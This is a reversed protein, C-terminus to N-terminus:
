GHSHGHQHCVLHQNQGLYDAMHPSACLEEFSGYFIVEHDLYLMKTAYEGVTGSDHTVLMITTGSHHLSKLTQYFNERTEPDLAVTPEDLFLVDPESVLARALYARQQQGGSLRGIMRDALNDIGLLALAKDVHQQDQKNLRRPFRKLSLRGAAVVERVSAPFGRHSRSVVQPVYGVRHWDRFTGVHCGCLEAKGSAIEVLGLIAKILTTKGSGNPGVIAVFEGGDVDFTIDKLVSTNQYRVRLDAVQILSM